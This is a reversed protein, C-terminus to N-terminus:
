ALPPARSPPHYTYASSISALPAEDFSAVIVLRSCTVALSAPPASEIKRVEEQDNEFALTCTSADDQHSVAFSLQFHEGAFLFAMLLLLSLAWQRHHSKQKCNKLFILM